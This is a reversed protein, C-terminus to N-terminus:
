VRVNEGEVARFVADLNEDGRMTEIEQPTGEAVAHGADLVSIRDCLRTVQRPDHSTYLVAMDMGRLSDVARLVAEQEDRDVGFTPEDLILLRPRHLLGIGINLQHKIADSCKSMRVPAQRDLDSLGLQELVEAARERAARKSMGNLCGFFTLNQEATLDPYIALDPPVYGICERARGAQPTVEMGAVTVTGEDPEVLGAVVSLATTKGSGHPGLLGYIEGADIHFSLGDVARIGPFHKCLGSVEVLRTDIM